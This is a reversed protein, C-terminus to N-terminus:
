LGLGRVEPKKVADITVLLRSVNRQYSVVQRTVIQENDYYNIYILTKFNERQLWNVVSNRWHFAYWQSLLLAKGYEIVLLSFLVASKQSTVERLRTSLWLRKL